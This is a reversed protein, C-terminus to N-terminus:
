DSVEVIVRDNLPQVPRSNEGILELFADVQEGSVEVPDKMVYWKYGESCPPTTLSGKYHYYSRDGPLIEEANLKVLTLYREIGEDDPLYEWIRSILGNPRGIKLMVAIVARKEAPDRHVLHVEMDFARGQLLHEGPAHFHFEILEYKKKGVTMTSGPLINVKVTHGNNVLKLPVAKYDFKIPGPGGKRAGTIDVPSQSKGLECKKFKPTLKAWMHPGDEEGYGWKPTYLRHHEHAKDKQAKDEHAEGENGEHAGHGTEGFADVAISMLALIFFSVVFLACTEVVTM